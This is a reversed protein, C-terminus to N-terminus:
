IWEFSVQGGKSTAADLALAAAMVTDDKGTLSEIREASRGGRISHKIGMGQLEIILKSSPYINLLGQILFKHLKMIIREKETHTTPFPEVVATTEPNDQLAEVLSMSNGKNEIFIKKFRFARNLEILKKEQIDTKTGKSPNQVHVIRYMSDGPQKEVIVYASWDAARESSLAVDVGLWYECNPKGIHAEAIKDDIAPKIVTDYDFIVDGPQIPECMKEQRFAIPGMRNYEKQLKDLTWRQPFLIPGRLKNGEIRDCCQFKKFYYGSGKDSLRHFLDFDSQPTGVVILQSDENDVAPEIVKFFKDISESQESMEKKLIDDCVCLDIRQGRISDTFPLSAIKSGTILEIESKTWTAIKNPPKLEELIENNSIAAKIRDLVEGSQNLSNSVIVINQNERRYARWMSFGVSCIETKAHGRPSMICVRENKLLKFIEKHYPGIAYGMIHKFFFEFSGRARMSFEILEDNGFRREVGYYSSLCEQKTRM